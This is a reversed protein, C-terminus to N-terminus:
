DFRDSPEIGLDYFHAVVAAPCLVSIGLRLGTAGGFFDPDPGIKPSIVNKAKSRHGFVQVQGRGEV